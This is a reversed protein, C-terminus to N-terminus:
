GDETSVFFFPLDTYSPVLCTNRHKYDMKNDKYCIYIKEVDSTIRAKDVEKLTLLM